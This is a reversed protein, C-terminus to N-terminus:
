WNKSTKSELTIMMVFNENGLFAPENYHNSRSRSRAHRLQGVVRCGDM